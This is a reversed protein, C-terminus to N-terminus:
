LVQWATLLQKIEDDMVHSDTGKIKILTRRFSYSHVRSKNFCSACCKLHEDTAEDRLFFGAISQPQEKGCLQCCWIDQSQSRILGQRKGGWKTWSGSKIGKFPDDPHAPKNPLTIRELTFHIITTL